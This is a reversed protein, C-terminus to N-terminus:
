MLEVWVLEVSTTLQLDMHKERNMRETFLHHFPIYKEDVSVLMNKVMPYKEVYPEINRDMFIMVDKVFSSYLFELDDDRNIFSKQRIKDILPKYKKM